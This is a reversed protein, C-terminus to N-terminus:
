PTIDPNELKIPDQEIYMTIKSLKPWYWYAECDMGGAFMAYAQRYENPEAKYRYCTEKM